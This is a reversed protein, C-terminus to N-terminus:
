EKKEDAEAPKREGTETPKKEESEAPKKEDTAATKKPALKKGRRPIETLRPEFDFLDSTKVTSSVTICKRMCVDACLNCQVCDAASFELYRPSKDEDRRRREVANKPTPKSEDTDVIARTPCFRACMGCGNCTENEITVEGFVRTDLTEVVPAGMEYLQDLIQLNRTADFPKTRDVPEVGLRERLIEEQTKGKINLRQEIMRSAVTQGFNKAAGGAGTFFGRRAVGVAHRMDKEAVDEPFESMREIPTEVGQMALLDRANRVTADIAPNVRKYKCTKCTGDVLAIKEVGEAVLDVLLTETIRGLCPVTSYKEPVGTRRAAMRACAIVAQNDAAVRTRELEDYLEMFDPELPVFVSTPCVAVCAGCSVCADVDVIVESNKITIADAICVDVCKTCTSRRHRVKTCRSAIPLVAKTKLTKALELIENITPM